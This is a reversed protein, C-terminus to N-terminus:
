TFDRVIGFENITGNVDGYPDIYTFVNNASVSGSAYSGSSTMPDMYSVSGAYSSNTYKVYGYIVVAHDGDQASPYAIAAIPYNDSIAFTLYDFTIGYNLMETNLGMLEYLADKINVLYGAQYKTVEAAEYVQDITCDSKYYQVIAKSCAAWCAYTYPQQSVLPMDDLFKQIPVSSYVQTNNFRDIEVPCKSTLKQAPLVSLTAPTSAIDNRNSVPNFSAIEYM